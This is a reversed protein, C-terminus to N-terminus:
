KGVLLILMNLTARLIEMKITITKTIEAHLKGDFAGVGVLLEFTTNVAAASVTCARNVGVAGSPKLVGVKGTTRAVLVDAVTGVSGGAEGRGGAAEAVGTQSWACNTRSIDM